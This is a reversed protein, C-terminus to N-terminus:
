GGGMGRPNARVVIKLYEAFGPHDFDRFRLRRWLYEIAVTAGILLYNAFNAMFSWWGHPAFVALAADWATMAIFIGTWFVTLQRTYRRLYDPLDPSAALAIASILPVRAARLTRGFFWALAAPIGISPLYLLPWGGGVRVLWWLGACSTAFALWARWRLEFMPIGLPVFALSILALWELLATRHMVAVHILVSCLVFSLM